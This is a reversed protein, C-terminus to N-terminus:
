FTDLQGTAIILGSATFKIVPKVSERRFGNVKKLFHGNFIKL